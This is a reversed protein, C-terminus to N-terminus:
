PYRSGRAIGLAARAELVALGALRINNNNQYATVVFESLAPDNFIEWWAVSDQPSFQFDERVYDSWSANSTSDPRVYDPGVPACAASLGCALFIATRIIQVSFTM